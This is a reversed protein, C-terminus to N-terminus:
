RKTPDYNRGFQLNAFKSTTTESVPHKPEAKPATDDTTGVLAEVVQSIEDAVAGTHAANAADYDFAVPEGAAAPAPRNATKIRELAKVCTNLQEQIDSIKAAAGLTHQPPLNHCVHQANFHLLYLHIIGGETRGHQSSHANAPKFAKRLRCFGADPNVGNGLRIRLIHFNVFLQEMTIFLDVIRKRGNVVAFVSSFVPQEKFLRNKIYQASTYLRNRVFFPFGAQM